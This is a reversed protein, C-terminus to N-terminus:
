IDIQGKVINRIREHPYEESEEIAETILDYKNKVALFRRTASERKWKPATRSNMVAVLDEVEKVMVPRDIIDDDSPYVVGLEDMILWFEKM